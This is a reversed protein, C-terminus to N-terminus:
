RQGVARKQRSTLERAKEEDPREKALAKQAAVFDKPPAATFTKMVGTRPHPFALKWAHLAQRGIIEARQAAKPGYLADGLLPLGAETFHVRIQHTRGTELRVEVLSAKAYRTVVEFHTIAPKGIRVLSSFKLRQKPHRAHLTDFTGTDFPPQGVVLALYVKEVARAKFAAQLARLAEDNKAVVMVGSTDKDLRHVLGPRMAGGVGQLDDVHHLLANVVTGSHHGAGPHVVMGAAKNLVIVDRDEFMVTLPLDEAEPVSSLLEPEQVQVTEHGQLRHGPKCRVGDVTVQGGDILAHARSRSLEPVHVPIVVDLREGRDAPTAVFITPPRVAPKPKPALAKKKKKKPAAV